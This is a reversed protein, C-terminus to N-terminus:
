MLSIGHAEFKNVRIIYTWQLVRLLLGDVFKGIGTFNITKMEFYVLTVKVEDKSDDVM